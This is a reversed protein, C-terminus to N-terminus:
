AKHLYVYPGGTDPFTAGLEAYIMAGILTIGGAVIWVLFLMVPSGLREAMSAPRMFIGAGIISGIVLSTASWLGISKKLQQPM